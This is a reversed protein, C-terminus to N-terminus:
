NLKKKRTEEETQLTYMKTTGYKNTFKTVTQTIYKRHEM